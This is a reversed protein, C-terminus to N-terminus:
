FLKQFMQIKIKITPTKKRIKQSLKQMSFVCMSFIQMELLRIICAFIRIVNAKV